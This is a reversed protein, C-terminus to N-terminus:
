GAILLPNNVIDDFFESVSINLVKCLKIITNLTAKKEDNNVISKITKASVKSLKSLAMIDLGQEAMLQNIKISIATKVDMKKDEKGEKNVCM